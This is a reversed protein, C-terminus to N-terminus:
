LGFTVAKWRMRSTNPTGTQTDSVYQVQGGSTISLTVGADDPGGGMDMLDWTAAGVKYSAIFRRIDKREQAGTSTSYRYIDVDIIAGRYSASDLLLSIVNAPSSQTNTITQSTEVLFGAGLYSEILAGATKLSNFWSALVTDGNERTPIASFSM